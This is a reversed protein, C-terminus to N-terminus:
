MVGFFLSTKSIEFIVRYAGVRLKRYGVLSKRLPKGFIEPHTTLKYEIATKIIQKTKKDLNPIDKKVVSDTYIITFRVGM